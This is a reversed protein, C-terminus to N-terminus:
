LHTRYTQFHDPTTFNHAMSLFLQFAPNSMESKMYKTWRAMHERAKPLRTPDELLWKLLRPKIGHGFKHRCKRHDNEGSDFGQPADGTM